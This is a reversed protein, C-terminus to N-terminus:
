IEPWFHCFLDFLKACGALNTLVGLYLALIQRRYESL